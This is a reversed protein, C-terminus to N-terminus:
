SGEGGEDRHASIILLLETESGRQVISVKVFVNVGEVVPYMEYAPEGIHAPDKSTITCMVPRDSDIWECIEHCIGAVTLRLAAMDRLARTTTRAAEPHAALMRVTRIVKRDTLEWRKPIHPM